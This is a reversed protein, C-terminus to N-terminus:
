WYGVKIGFIVFKDGQRGPLDAGPFFYKGARVGHRVATDGVRYVVAESGGQMAYTQTSLLSLTPPLVRVPLKQEAIVPSASRMGGGAGTAEVRVTAEGNVLWPQDKKGLTVELRKEADRPAWVKWLPRTTGTAEGLVEDRGNQSLVVKVGAVGRRPESVTVVVPTGPGIGPKAPAIKVEPAPGIGFLTLAGVGAAILLVLLILIKLGPGMRQTTRM